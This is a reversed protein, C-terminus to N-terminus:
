GVGFNASTKTVIAAGFNAVTLLSSLKDSVTQAIKQSNLTVLWAMRAGFDLEDNEIGFPQTFLTHSITTPNITADGATFDPNAATQTAAVSQIVAVVRPRAPNRGPELPFARAVSAFPALITYIANSALIALSQTNTSFTNAM